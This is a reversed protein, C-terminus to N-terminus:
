RDSCEPEHALWERIYGPCNELTAGRDTCCKLIRVGSRDVRTVNGLDLVLGKGNELKILRELAVVDGGEIAGSVTLVTRGNSVREIKLMAKLFAISTGSTLGLLKM